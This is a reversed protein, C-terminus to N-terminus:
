NEIQRWSGWSTNFGRWFADGTGQYHGVIQGTVNSGNGFVICSWYTASPANSAGSEIRYFGPKKLDDMDGSFETMSSLNLSTITGAFTAAQASNLTLALTNNTYVLMNDNVHTYEIYGPYGIRDGFIVKSSANTAYTQLYLTAHASGGDQVSEVHIASEGTATKVHLTTDPSSEGIGVNGGNLQLTLPYELSLNDRDTVQLWAGWPSSNFTGMDLVNSNGGVVDEIRFNGVPTTGTTAPAGNDAAIAFKILPAATGIGVNGTANDWHMVNPTSNSNLTLSNTAGSGEFSLNWRASGNEKVTLVDYRGGDVGNTIIADGEDAISGVTVAGSSDIRMRETTDNGGDPTTAFILRGPMDNVGPTGDVQAYIKAGVPDRDGGDAGIFAIAGFNDGDQVITDSNLATGRSSGMMLWAGGADNSDRFISVAGTSHTLGEVQLASTSGYLTEMTSIGVGLTAGLVSIDGAGDFEIREADDAIGISTDDGMIINGLLTVNNSGDLTIGSTNTDGTKTSLIITQDNVTNKIYSHSGDSYVELDQDAGAKFKGSDSDIKIDAM